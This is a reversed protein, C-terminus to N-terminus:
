GKTTQDTHNNQDQMLEMAKYWEESGPEVRTVTGDPATKTMRAGTMLVDDLLEAQLKEWNVKTDKM